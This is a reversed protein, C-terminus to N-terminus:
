ILALITVKFAASSSRPATIAIQSFTSTPTFIPSLRSTNAAHASLCANVSPRQGSLSAHRFRDAGFKNSVSMHEMCEETEARFSELAVPDAGQFGVAELALTISRTLLEQASEEEQPPEQRRIVGDAVWILKHHRGPRFQQKKSPPLPFDAVTSNRKLSNSHDIAMPAM